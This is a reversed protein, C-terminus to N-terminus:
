NIQIIEYVKDIKHYHNAFRIMAKNLNESELEVMLESGHSLYTFRFKKMKNLIRMIGNLLM